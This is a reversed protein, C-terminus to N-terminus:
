RTYITLRASMGNKFEPHAAVDFRVYVNFTNTPRKDSISFAVNSENASPAIREVTGIFKEGGFADVTFTAPQGVAIKDLGKNEDITGVVRLENPDIMTVVAQGPSFTTGPNNQVDTVIGGIQSTLVDAGVKALEEQPSVTDGAQVYVESLVGSLEPSISITPAELVSKDINVKGSSARWFLVAGLVLAILIVGSLSQVIPNAFISKKKKNQTENEM